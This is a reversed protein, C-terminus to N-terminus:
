KMSLAYVINYLANFIKEDDRAENYANEDVYICLDVIRPKNKLNMM